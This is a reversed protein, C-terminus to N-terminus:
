EEDSLTLLDYRESLIYHRLSAVDDLFTHVNDNGDVRACFGNAYHVIGANVHIPIGALDYNANLAARLAAKQDLPHQILDTISPAFDYVSEGQFFYSNKLLRLLMEESDITVDTSHSRSARDYFSTTIGGGLKASDLILTVIEKWVGSAGRMGCNVHSDQNITLEGPLYLEGDPKKEGIPEVAGHSNVQVTIDMRQPFFARHEDLMNKITAMTVGIADHTMFSGASSLSAFHVQIGASSYIQSLASKLTEDLGGVDRADSCRYHLNAMLFDMHNAM